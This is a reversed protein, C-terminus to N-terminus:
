DTSLSDIFGIITGNIKIDFEARKEKGAATTLNPENVNLVARQVELFFEELEATDASMAVSKDIALKAAADAEKKREAEAAEHKAAEDIAVKAQRERELAEQQAKAEAAIAAREEALKARDAALEADAKRQEAELKARENALRAEEARLADAKAEIEKARAIEVDVANLIAVKAGTAREQFEAWSEDVVLAAYMAKMAELEAAAKGHWKHPEAAFWSIAETFYDIRAKVQALKEDRIAQKKDDWGLRIDKLPKEAALLVGTIRKAESDVLRGWALSDAKLEKRKHEVSGRVRRIPAEVAKLQEYQSGDGIPVDKYLLAIAESDGSLAELSADTVNYNVVEQNNM